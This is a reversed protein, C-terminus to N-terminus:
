ISALETPVLASIPEREDGDYDSCDCLLCRQHAGNKGKRVQAHHVFHHGCSERRCRGPGQKSDFSIRQAEDSM